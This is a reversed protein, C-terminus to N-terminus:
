GRGLAAGWPTGHQYSASWNSRLVGSQAPNRYGAAERLRQWVHSNAIATGSSGNALLRKRFIRNLKWAM